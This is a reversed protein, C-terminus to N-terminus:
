GELWTKNLLYINVIDLIMYIKLYLLEDEWAMDVRIMM